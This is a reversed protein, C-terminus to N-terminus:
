YNSNQELIESILKKYEQVNKDFNRKLHSGLLVGILLLIGVILYTYFNNSYELVMAALFGLGLIIHGYMILKSLPHQSFSVEVDTENGSSTKSIKGNVIINNQLNIEFPLLLRKRLKFNILNYKNNKMDFAFRKANELSSKLQESIEEPSNKVQFNWNKM